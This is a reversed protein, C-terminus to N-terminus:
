QSSGRSRGANEQNRRYENQRNAFEVCETEYDERIRFIAKEFPYEQGEYVFSYHFKDIPYYFSVRMSDGIKARIEPTFFTQDEVPIASARIELTGDEGGQLESVAGRVPFNEMAGARRPDSMAISQFEAQKRRRIEEELFRDAFYSRRHLSKITERRQANAQFAIVERLERELKETHFWEKLKEKLINESPPICTYKVEVEEEKKVQSFGPFSFSYILMIIMLKM